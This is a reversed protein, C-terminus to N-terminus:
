FLRSSRYGLLLMELWTQEEGCWCLMMMGGGVMQGSRVLEVIQGKGLVWSYRLGGLSETDCNHEWVRRVRCRM